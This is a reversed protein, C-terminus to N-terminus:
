QQAELEAINEKIACTARALANAYVADHTKRWGKGYIDRVLDEIYRFAVIQEQRSGSHLRTAVEFPISLGLRANQENTGLQLLPALIASARGSPGDNSEVLNGPLRSGSQNSAAVANVFEQLHAILQIAHAPGIHIGLYTHDVHLSLEADGGNSDFALLIKEYGVCPIAKLVMM